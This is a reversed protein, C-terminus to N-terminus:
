LGWCRRNDADPNRSHADAGSARTVQGNAVVMRLVRCHRDGAQAGTATAVLTYGNAGTDSVSLTYHRLESAAPARLEAADAYRTHDARWQEQSMQLQLLAAIGDMRRAKYLPAQFSPYAVGALVGIIATVIMMEILTFGHQIRQM